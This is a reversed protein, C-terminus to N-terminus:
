RLQEREKLDPDRTIMPNAMMEKSVRVGLMAAFGQIHMQSRMASNPADSDKEFCRFLMYEQLANVYIDDLPVTDTTATLTTPLAAYRVEVYGTGDGEPYVYFTLPDIEPEYMWHYTITSATDTRWDPLVDKLTNHDILSVARGPTLGDTGMNSTIDHMFVCSSPVTQKSGSAILVAETTVNASLKNVVTARLAENLYGLLETETWRRVTGEDILTKSVSDLVSQVLM